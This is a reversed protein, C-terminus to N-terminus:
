QQETQESGGQQDKEYFSSLESIKERVFDMQKLVADPVDRQRQVDALVTELYNKDGLDRLFLSLPQTWPDDSPNFYLDTTWGYRDQATYAVVWVKELARRSYLHYSNPYQLQYFDFESPDFGMYNDKKGAPFSSKMWWGDLQEKSLMLEDHAVAKPMGSRVMIEELREKLKSLERLLDGADPKSNQQELARVQEWITLFYDETLGDFNTRGDLDANILQSFVPTSIDSSADTFMRRTALIDPTIRFLEQNAIDNQSESDGIIAKKRTNTEFEMKDAPEEYKLGLRTCLFAINQKVNIIDSQLTRISDTMKRQARSCENLVRGFYEISQPDPLVIKVEEQSPDFDTFLRAIYGNGESNINAVLVKQLFERRYLPGEPFFRFADQNQINKWNTSNGIKEAPLKVGKEYYFPSFDYVMKNDDAAAHPVVAARSSPQGSAGSVPVVPRARVPAHVPRAPAMVPRAAGAAGPRAQNLSPRVGIATADNSPIHSLTIGVTFALVALANDLKM